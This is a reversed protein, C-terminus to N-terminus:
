FAHTGLMKVFRCEQLITKQYGLETKKVKLLYQKGGEAIPLVLVGNMALQDVLPKPVQPSVAAAVIAEYPAHETWALSGDGLKLIVNSIHLQKLHSRAKLLLASIREISYIQKALGALIATQYGCGTGIELVKENGKLELAQALLAVTHPQSITQGLGLNLPTNQYAQSVLAEEVFIHRPVQYMQELVKQDDIGKAKLQEEVMRRRAVSYENLM